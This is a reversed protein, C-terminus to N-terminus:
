NMKLGGSFFLDSFSLIFFFSFCVFRSELGIKAVLGNSGSCMVDDGEVEIDKFIHHSWQVLNLRLNWGFHVGM